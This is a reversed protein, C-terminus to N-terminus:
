PFRPQERQLFCLKVLSRLEGVGAQRLTQVM